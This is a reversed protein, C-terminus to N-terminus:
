WIITIWLGTNRGSCSFWFLQLATNSAVQALLHRLYKKVKKQEQM